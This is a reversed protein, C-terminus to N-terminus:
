KLVSSSSIKVFTKLVECLNLIYMVTGVQLMQIVLLCVEGLTLFYTLKEDTESCVRFIFSNIQRERGRSIDRVCVCM